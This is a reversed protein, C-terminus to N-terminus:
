SPLARRLFGLQHLLLNEAVSEEAPLHTTGPLPLVEHPRGAALLAASMRLTHAPTVNDDALGHILLLPRTLSAAELVPSCRDYAEPHEDPHGLHRERWHTDYLRQDTVPAGAVAAHFVDPRRLVGLAALYGGFSWGRIAVRSLDLEPRRAAAERLGEVQDDLVPGALDLHIEREWAPGRGPTGRGDIALVGFGQEAFWQSVYTWWAREATVKRLAPGGYPDMLVPLPADGPRHWSPLFLAARLERPGLTLLEARPELVPRQAHSVVEVPDGGGSATHVTVRTGPRDLTRSFLVTTGGGRVASHVGPEASLLGAGTGPGATQLNAGTGPGAQLNAGTGPGATLPHAGTDPHYSWVDTRTPEDTAAFLVTRGDVALVGLLQLGPPSVPVGDALLHRTGDIDGGTFLVGASDRAPLGPLLEVWAADRQEALVETAGTDPDLGLVQVHRQDRSQVSAYPGADDWGADTLYEFEKADWAVPILAAGGVADAIWLSVEANATGASPYPFSVAPRSPDAPDAMHRRRVPSTDVRAVLLRAGDPSWWYGRHRGMSESAVHEALGFTLEPGDPVAVARDVGGELPGAGELRVPGELPVADKLTVVRLAGGSVYAVRHGAPDPRPDLVPEAAAVPRVEGDGVRVTWLRGSLTFALLECAADAAYAVIGSSLEGARQRRTLEEPSLEEGAGVLLARPDALLRERGTAVDLAWLCSVPDDGARSRLFVVTGGDPSVTVKGPTGLTFRRTRALQRPLSPGSM